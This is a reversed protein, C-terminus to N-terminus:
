FKASPSGHSMLLSLYNQQSLMRKMTSSRLIIDNLAHIILPMIQEIGSALNTM